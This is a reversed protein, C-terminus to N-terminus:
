EKQHSEESAVVAIIVSARSPTGPGTPGPGAGWATVSPGRGSPDASLDEALHQRVAEARRASLLFQDKPTAAEPATAVVYVDQGARRGGPALDGGLAALFERAPRDLSWQGRAFQIPTQIVRPAESPGDTAQTRNQRRVGDFLKRIKEDEADIIREMAQNDPDSEVAYKRQIHTRDASRRTALLWDLWGPNGPITQGPMEGTALVQAKQAHSFSQILIFFALLNTIMDGFSLIWIPVSPEPDPPRLRSM